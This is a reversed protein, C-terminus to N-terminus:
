TKWVAYIKLVNNCFELENNTMFCKMKMKTQKEIM